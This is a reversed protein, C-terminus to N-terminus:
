AEKWPVTERAIRFPPLFQGEKKSQIGIQSCGFIWIASFLFLYIRLNPTLM